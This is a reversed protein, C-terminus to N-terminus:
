THHLAVLDVGPYRGMVARIRGSPEDRHDRATPLRIYLSAPVELTIRLNGPGSSLGYGLTNVLPDASRSFLSRRVPAKTPSLRALTALFKDLEATFKTDM